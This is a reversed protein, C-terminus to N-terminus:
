NLNRKMIILDGKHMMWYTTLNMDESLIFDNDILQYIKGPIIWERICSKSDEKAIWHTAKLPSLTVKYNLTQTM